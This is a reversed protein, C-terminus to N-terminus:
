QTGGPMDGMYYIEFSCSITSETSSTDFTLSIGKINSIRKLGEIAALFESVRTQDGVVTVSVTAIGSTDNPTVHFNTLLFGKEAISLVFTTLYSSVLPSEPMITDFVPIYAKAQKYALDTESLQNLKTQMLVKLDNLRIVETRKAFFSTLGGIVGFGGLVIINIFVLVVYVTVMNSDKFLKASLNRITKM